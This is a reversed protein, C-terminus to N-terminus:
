TKSPLSVYARGAALALESRTPKAKVAPLLSFRAKKEVEGESKAEEDQLTSFSSCMWLESTICWPTLTYDLIRLTWEMDPKLTLTALYAM